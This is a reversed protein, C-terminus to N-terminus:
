RYKSSDYNSLKLKHTDSTRGAIMVDQEIAMPLVGYGMYDIHEGVIFIFVKNDIILHLSDKIIFYSKPSLFICWIQTNHAPRICICNFNVGYNNEPNGIFPLTYLVM